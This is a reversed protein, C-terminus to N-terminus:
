NGGSRYKDEYIQKNFEKLRYLEEGVKYIIFFILCVIGMMMLFILVLGYIEGIQKLTEIM